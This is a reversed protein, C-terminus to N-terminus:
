KDRVLENRLNIIYNSLGEQWTYGADWRKGVFLNRTRIHKIYFKYVHADINQSFVQSKGDVKIESVFATENENFPYELLQKAVKGTSNVYHMIYQFGDKRLADEDKSGDVFEWRYPYNAMVAKIDSTDAFVPVALKESKFNLDYFESRRGTIIDVPAGYEPTGIILLNTKELGSNAAKKYLSNMMSSLDVGTMKFASQGEAILFKRDQLKLLILQYQEGDFFVLAAHSLNRDDFADLYAHYSEPGSFIDDIYYHVVADIKAKQFGQQITKSVSSWEGRITPNEGESPVETLVVTKSSLIKEPLPDSYNLTSLRRLFETKQCRVSAATLITLLTCLFVIRSM